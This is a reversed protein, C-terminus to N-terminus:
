WTRPRLLALRRLGNSKRRLVRVAWEAYAEAYEPSLRDLESTLEAFTRGAVLHSPSLWVLYKYTLGGPYTEIVHGRYRWERIPM